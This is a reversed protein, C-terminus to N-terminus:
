APKTSHRYLVRRQAEQLLEAGPQRRGARRGHQRAATKGEKILLGIPRLDVGYMGGNM